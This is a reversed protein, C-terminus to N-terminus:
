QASSWELRMIKWGDPMKALVAKEEIVKDIPKDSRNSIMRIKSVIRDKSSGDNLVTRELLATKVSKQYELDTDM